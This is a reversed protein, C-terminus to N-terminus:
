YQAYIKELVEEMEEKLPKTGSTHNNHMFSFILLKGSKAILYGSLCHKNSLTGTKAFVYAKEQGGYWNQITGSKGGAPFIEKVYDLSTLQYIKRLITTLTRPTILNYRSLGSGDVWIPRDPLDTLLNEQAYKIIKQTSLTDFLQDSCVLLLQEAIFNDSLQIVQSYAEKPTSSYIIQSGASPIRYNPYISIKKKTARSLLAILLDDSYKFPIATQYNYPLAEQANYEFINAAQKRKIRPGRNKQNPTDVIADNFFSPQIKYGLTNKEKEFRVVNGFIPLPSKEAQFSYNYDDWAWGEGFPYDEYNYPCFFLQEKRSALFNTVVENSSLNPNLLSPDGTGWFLLSDGHIEYHLAPISDSLLNLCTYLTLIKSNSAPTFYKNADYEYIIKGTQAEILSFGTFNNSFGSAKTIQSTWDEKAKKAIRKNGACGILLLTQFILLLYFWYSHLHFRFMIQKEFGKYPHDM